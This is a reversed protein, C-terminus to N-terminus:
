VKLAFQFRKLKNRSLKIKKEGSIRGDSGVPVYAEKYIQHHKTTHGLIKYKVVNELCVRLGTTAHKVGKRHRRLHRHHATVLVQYVTTNKFGQYFAPLSHHSGIVAHRYYLTININNYFIGMKKNPNSFQLNLLVSINGAHHFTSNRGDLTPIYVDTIVYIPSKPTLLLWIVVSSFGNVIVVQLIWLCLCPESDSPNKLDDM